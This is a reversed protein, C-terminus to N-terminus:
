GTGVLPSPAVTTPHRSRITITPRGPSRATTATRRPPRSRLHLASRSISLRSRSGLSTRERSGPSRTLGLGCGWSTRNKAVGRRAARSTRRWGRSRRRATARSSCSPSRAASRRSTAPRRRPGTRRSSRRRGAALMSSILWTWRNVGRRLPLLQLAILTALTAASVSRPGSAAPRSRRTRPASRRSCRRDVRVLPRDLANVSSSSRATGRRRRRRPRSPPAAATTDAATVCQTVLAFCAAVRSRRSSSASRPSAPRGAPRASARQSPALRRSPRRRAASASAGRAARPARARRRTRAARRRPSRRRRGGDVPAHGARRAPEPRPHRLRGLHEHREARDIARRREPERHLDVDDPRQTSEVRRGPRAEAVSNRAITSSPASRSCRRSRPPRRIAPGHRSGRCSRARRAVVARPPEGPLLGPRRPQRVQGVREDRGPEVPRSGRRPRSTAPRDRRGVAHSRRAPTRPAPCARSPTPGARARHRRPAPRASRTAADAVSGSGRPAPAPRTTRSRSRPSRGRPPPPRGSSTARQASSRRGPSPEVATASMGVRGAGARGARRPAAPPASRRGRHRAASPRPPRRPSASPEGGCGRVHRQGLEDGRAGGDRAVSSASRIAPPGPNRAPRRSRANRSARAPSM